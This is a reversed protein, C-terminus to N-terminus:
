HMKGDSKKRWASSLRSRVSIKDMVIRIFIGSLKGYRSQHHLGVHRGRCAAVDDIIMTNTDIVADSTASLSSEEAADVAVSTSIVRVALGPHKIPQAMEGSKEANFQQKFPRAPFQPSVLPPCDGCIQSGNQVAKTDISRVPYL